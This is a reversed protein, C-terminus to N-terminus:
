FIYINYQWSPPPSHSFSIIDLYPRVVVICARKYFSPLPSMSSFWSVVFCTHCSRESFAQFSWGGWARPTV